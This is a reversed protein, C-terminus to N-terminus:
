DNDSACKKKAHTLVGKEHQLMFIFADQEEAELAIEDGRFLAKVVVSVDRPKANHV